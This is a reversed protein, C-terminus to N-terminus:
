VVSKRDQYSYALNALAYIKEYNSSSYTAAEEFCLAAQTYDNNKIYEIGKQCISNYNQSKIAVTILLLAISLKFRM